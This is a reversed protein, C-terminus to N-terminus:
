PSFREKPLRIEINTSFERARQKIGLKTVNRRFFYWDAFSRMFKKFYFNTKRFVFKLTQQFIKADQKSNKLLFNRSKHPIYPRFAGFNQLVDDVLTDSLLVIWLSKLPFIPREVPSNWHKGFFEMEPSIRFKAVFVCWNRGLHQLM